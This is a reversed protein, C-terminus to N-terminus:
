GAGGDEVGWVAAWTGRKPIDRDIREYMKAMAESVADFAGACYLRADKRSRFVRWALSMDEAQTSGPLEVVEPFLDPMAVSKVTHM